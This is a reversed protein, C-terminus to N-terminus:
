GGAAGAVVAPREAMSRWAGQTKKQQANWHGMVAMLIAVLAEIPLRNLDPAPEGVFLSEAVKQMDALKATRSEAAEIVAVDGLTPARTPYRQGGIEIALDWPLIMSLYDDLRITTM